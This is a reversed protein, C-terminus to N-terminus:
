SKNHTIVPKHLLCCKETKMRNKAPFSLYITSHKITIISWGISEFRLNLCCCLHLCDYTSIRPWVTQDNILNISSWQYTYVSTLYINHVQTIRRWSKSLALSQVSGYSKCNILNRQLACYTIVKINSSITFNEASSVSLCKFSVIQQLFFKLRAGLGLKGSSVM